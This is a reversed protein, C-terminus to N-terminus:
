LREFGGGRKLRVRYHGGRNFCREVEAEMAAHRRVFSYLLAIPTLRRDVLVLSLNPYRALLDRIEPNKRGRDITVLACVYELCWAVNTADSSGRPPATGDGIAYM